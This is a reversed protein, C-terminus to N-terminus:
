GVNRLVVHAGGRPACPPATSPLPLACEPHELKFDEKIKKAAEVYVAREALPLAKWQEGLLM